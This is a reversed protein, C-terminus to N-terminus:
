EHMRKMVKLIRNFGPIHKILVYVIVFWFLIWINDALVMLLFFIQINFPIFLLWPVRLHLYSYLLNLCIKTMCSKPTNMFWQYVYIEYWFPRSWEKASFVESLHLSKCLYVTFYRFNLALINRNRFFVKHLKHCFFIVHSPKLYVQHNIQQCGLWTVNLRVGIM